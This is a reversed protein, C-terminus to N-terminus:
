VRWGFSSGFYLVTKTRYVDLACTPAAGGRPGGLLHLRNVRLAGITVIDLGDDKRRHVGQRAVYPYVHVVDVQLQISLVYQGTGREGIRFVSSLLGTYKDWRSM